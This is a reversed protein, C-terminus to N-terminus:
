CDRGTNNWPWPAKLWADGVGDAGPEIPGFQEEYARKLEDHQAYYKELLAKASADDPHTDLYLHLDWISFRIAMFRYKLGSENMTM